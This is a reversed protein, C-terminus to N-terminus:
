IHPRLSDVARQWPTGAAVASRITERVWRVLPRLRAPARAAEDAPLPTTGQFEPEHSLPLLGRPSVLTVEGAFGQASLFSLVDLASLGSGLLLLRGQMP